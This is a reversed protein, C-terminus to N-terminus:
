IVEEWGREVEVASRPSASAITTAMAGRAGTYLM